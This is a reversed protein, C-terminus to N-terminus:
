TYTETGRREFRGRGQRAPFPFDQWGPFHACSYVAYVRERALYLSNYLYVRLRECVAIIGEEGGGDMRNEPSRVAGSPEPRLEADGGDSGFRVSAFLARRVHVRVCVRAFRWASPMWLVPGVRNWGCITMHQLLHQLSNPEDGM